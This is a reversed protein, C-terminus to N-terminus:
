STPMENYEEDNNSNNIADRFGLAIDKYPIMYIYSGVFIHEIMLIFLFLPIKNNHISTIMAYIFVLLIVFLGILLFINLLCLLIIKKLQM